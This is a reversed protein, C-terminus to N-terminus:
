VSFRTDIEFYKNRLKETNLLPPFHLNKHPFPMGRLINVSSMICHLTGWM